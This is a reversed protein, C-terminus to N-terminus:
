KGYRSEMFTKWNKKGVSAPDRSEYMEQESEECDTEEEIKEDEDEDDHAEENLEEKDEEDEESEEEEMMVEEDHEMEALEEDETPEPAPEEVPAEEGDGMDLPSEDSPEEIEGGEVDPSEPGAVGEPEVANALDHLSTFTDKPYVVVTFAGLHEDQVDGMFAGNAPELTADSPLNSLAKAIFEETKENAQAEVSDGGDEPAVEPEDVSVPEPPPEEGPPVEDVADEVPEDEPPLEEEERFPKRALQDAINNGGARPASPYGQVQEQQMAKWGEKLTQLTKGHEEYKEERTNLDAYQNKKAM